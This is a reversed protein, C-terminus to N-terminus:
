GVDRLEVIKGKELTVNLRETRMDMTVMQNRGDIVTPRIMDIFDMGVKVRNKKIWDEAQDLTLGVLPFLPRLEPSLQNRKQVFDQKRALHRPPIETTAARLRLRLGLPFKISYRYSSYQNRRKRYSHM